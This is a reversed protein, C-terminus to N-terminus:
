FTNKRELLLDGRFALRTNFNHRESSPTFYEHFFVPATKNLCDYVFSFLQLQRIDEIKLFNLQIIKNFTMVRVIKKQIVILKQVLSNYTLGWVTIGYSAFSYFLSYYLQKLIELPAYHRINYFLGLTRSLKKSLENIYHKCSLNADLLIGLFKVCNERQIKKSEFKVIVPEPIKVRPPHFIM